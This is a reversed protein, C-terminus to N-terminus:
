AVPTFLAEVARQSETALAKRDPAVIPKAGFSVLARFPPLTLLELFHGLFPMDGWWCVALRAPPAGAPTVYSVSAYSVPHGVSAPVEFVSAKFPAVASGDTSTGEPFVVLGFGRTLRDGIERIVRKLDSKRTRDVFLTGTSRALLGIVPWRAIESKALFLGDLQTFLVIIDLYSVHNAVLFFPPSPPAGTVEVRIGLIAAAGRAWVRVLAHHSRRSLDSAVLALPRTCLWVLYCGFTWPFFACLRWTARLPGM